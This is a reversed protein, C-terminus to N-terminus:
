VPQAAENYHQLAEHGQLVFRVRLHNFLTAAAPRKKQHDTNKLYLEASKGDHSGFKRRCASMKFLVTGLQKDRIAVETMKIIFHEYTWPAWSNPSMGNFESEDSDMNTIILSIFPEFM